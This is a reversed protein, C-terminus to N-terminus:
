AASFLRLGLFWGVAIGVAAGFFARYSQGYRLTFFIEWAVIILLIAVSPPLTFLYFLFGAALIAWFGSFIDLCTHAIRDRTDMKVAGRFMWAQGEKFDEAAENKTAKRSRTLGIILSVPFSSIMGLIQGVLIPLGVVLITYAIIIKM